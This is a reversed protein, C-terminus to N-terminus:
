GRNARGALAHHDRGGVAEVAPPSVVPERPLRREDRGVAKALTGEPDEGDAPDVGRPLPPRGPAAGVVVDARHHDTPISGAFSEGVRDPSRLDGPPQLSLLAEGHVTVRCFFGEVAFRLSDAARRGVETVIRVGQAIGTRDVVGDATPDGAAGRSAAPQDAAVGEVPNRAVAVEAPLTGVVTGVEAP